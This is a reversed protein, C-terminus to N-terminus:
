RTGVYGPSLTSVSQFLVIDGRRIQPQTDTGIGWTEAVDRWATLKLINGDGDGLIMKLISTQNGAHQGKRITVADPGEVELIAMLVNVKLSGKTRSSKAMEVLAKVLRLTRLDFSFHPFRGVSSTDSYEHSATEQTEEMTSDRLDSSVQSESARGTRYQTTSWSVFTEAARSSHEADLFNDDSRGGTDEDDDEAFIMNEYLRSIRRSAAEVVSADLMPTITTSTEWEFDGENCRLTAPSPAGLFVHFHKPM